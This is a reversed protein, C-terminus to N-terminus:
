PTVKLQVSSVQEALTGSAVGDVEVPDVVTVVLIIVECGVVKLDDLGVDDPSVVDVDVDTGVDPGVDGGESFYLFLV